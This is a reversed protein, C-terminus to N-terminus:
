DRSKIERFAALAASLAADESRFSRLRGSPTRLEGVGIVFAEYTTKSYRRGVRIQGDESILAYRLQGVRYSNFLVGDVTKHGRSTRRYTPDLYTTRDDDM